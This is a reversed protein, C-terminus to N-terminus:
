VTSSRACSLFWAIHTKPGGPAPFVVSTLAQSSELHPLADAYRDMSILAYAAMLQGFALEFQNNEARAITLAQEIHALAESLQGSVM